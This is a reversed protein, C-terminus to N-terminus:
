SKEFTGQHGEVTFPPPVRAITARRGREAAAACRTPRRGKSNNSRIQDVRISPTRARLSGKLPAAATRSCCASISPGDIARAYDVLGEADDITAGTEGYSATRWCPRHLRPGRSGAPPLRPFARNKCCSSRRSAKASTSGRPRKRRAARGHECLRRSSDRFHTRRADLSFPVPVTDTAFPRCLAGPRAVADIRCASTRAHLRRPDRLPPVPRHGILVFNERHGYARTPFTTDINLEVERSSSTSGSAWLAAQLRAATSRFRRCPRPRFLGGGPDPAHRWVFARLNAPVPDRNIGLAEIGQGRSAFASSGGRHLRHCDGDPRLHGIVAVKRGALRELRGRRFAESEEPYFRKLAEDKTM